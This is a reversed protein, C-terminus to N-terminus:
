RRSLPGRSLRTQSDEFLQNIWASVDREYKGWGRFDRVQAAQQKMLRRLELDKSLRILHRTISESDAVPILFGNRGNEILESSGARDTALPILGSAMAQILSQSFGEEFTPMVFVDMQRVLASLQARQAPPHHIFHSYRRLIPRFSPEVHGILHVEIENRPFDKTAELLYVIGKRVSINGFYVVRLPSVRSEDLPRFASSDVGLWFARVKEAPVGEDLFTQRAFNSPVIIYDALQYELLEREVVYSEDPYKLGLNVCEQRLVRSQFAIHSSGRVVIKIAAKSVRLSELAFSSWGIFLDASQGSIRRAVQRGFMGIKIFTSVRPCGFKAGVRAIVEPVILSIVRERPLTSFRSAPLSTFLTVEHGSDILAKALHDSHFRGGVGIHIRRPDM